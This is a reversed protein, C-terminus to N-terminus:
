STAALMRRQEHDTMELTVSWHTDDAAGLGCIVGDFHEDGMAFSYADGVHFNANGFARTITTTPMPQLIAASGTTPM